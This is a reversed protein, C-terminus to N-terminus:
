PSPNPSSLTSPPCRQGPAIVPIYAVGDDNSRSISNLDFTNDVGTFKLRGLWVNGWM